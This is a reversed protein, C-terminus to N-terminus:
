LQRVKEELPFEIGSVTVGVTHGDILIGHGSYYVFVTIKTNQHNKRNESFIQEIQSFSDEIKQTNSIDQLKTVKFSCSELYKTIEDGDNTSSLLPKFSEISYQAM